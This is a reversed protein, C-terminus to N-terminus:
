VKLPETSQPVPANGIAEPTRSDQAQTASEYAPPVTLATVAYPPPPVLSQGRQNPLRWQQVLFRAAALAENQRRHRRAHRMYYACRGLIYCSLCQIIFSVLSAILGASLWSASDPYHALEVILLIITLARLASSVTMWGLDAVIMECNEYRLGAHLLGAFFLNAVFLCIGLILFRTDFTAAMSPDSWKILYFATFLMLEVVAVAAQGINVWGAADKVHM